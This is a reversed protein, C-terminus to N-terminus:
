TSIDPPHAQVERHRSSMHHTLLSKTAFKESCLTCAHPRQGTHIRRHVALSSTQTFGKGCFECKYPKEGTHTRLHVVLASSTRSAKGCTPCVFPREDNHIRNHAYLAEQCNLIKHCIKCEAGRKLHVSRIHRRLHNRGTFSKGCTDCQHVRSAPLHLKSHTTLNFKNSFMKKCVPCAHPQADHEKVNHVNLENKSLFGAQCKKCFVTYEKIHRMKHKVIYYKKTTSYNCMDCSFTGQTEHDKREHSKRKKKSNFMKLCLRCQFTQEEVIQSEEVSEILKENEKKFNEEHIEIEDKIEFESSISQKRKQPKSEVDDRRTKVIRANIHRCCLYLFFENELNFGCCIDLYPADSNIGSAPNPVGLFIHVFRTRPFWIHTEM